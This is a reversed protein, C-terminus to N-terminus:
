DFDAADQRYLKLGRFAERAPGLNDENGLFLNDVVVLRAPREKAIREVLHSGIFGAGGTVLVNKGALSLPGATSGADHAQAASDTLATEGAGGRPRSAGPVPLQLPGSWPGPPRPACM